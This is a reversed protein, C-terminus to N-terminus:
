CTATTEKTESSQLSFYFEYEDLKFVGLNINIFVLYFFYFPLNINMSDSCVSFLVFNHRRYYM